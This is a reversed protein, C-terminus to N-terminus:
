SSSIAWRPAVRRYILELQRARVTWTLHTRGHRMAAAAMTRRLDDDAELRRFAEALADILTARPAIPIRIGTDGPTLEPPGGYDVVVPVVGCVMAEPVVGGGFERLSPFALVHSRVLHAHVEEHPLNGLFQVRDTVGLQATLDELASREPGEGLITMTARGTRLLDAAGALALDIGKLAVLRGVFVMRLPEGPVRVPIPVHPFRREDVANEPLTLIRDRCTAPLNARASRSGALILTASAWTSALGPLLRSVPRLATMRDGERRALEPFHPPWALHGNIPGVIFPVGMRRCRAALLSPATLSVPTVRHVVDFEGARLRPGMARWVAREFLPYTLSALGTYISWGLSTGGRLWKALRWATGQAARNDIATFREAPFGAALIDDRNRLESVLHVDCTDLLSQAVSWGILAVSTLRPNAAEAILLVRPRPHQTM